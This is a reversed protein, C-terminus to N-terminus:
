QKLRKTIRWKITQRDIEKNAVLGSRDVIGADPQGKSPWENGCSMDTEPSLQPETLRMGQPLLDSILTGGRSCYSFHKLSLTLCPIIQLSDLKM